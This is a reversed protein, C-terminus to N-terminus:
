ARPRDRLATGVQLRLDARRSSVSSPSSSASARDAHAQAVDGLLDDLEHGLQRALRAREDVGDLRGPRERVQHGRVEVRRDVLLGRQELRDVDLVADALHEPQERALELDELHALADVGLDLLLHAFVLALVDKALLELGDLLLEALVVAVLAVEVPELLADRLRVERGLGLSTAFFCSLRRRLMCTPMAGLVRDHARVEVPDEVQGHCACVGRCCPCRARHALDEVVVVVAELLDLLADELVEGDALQLLVLLPGIRQRM